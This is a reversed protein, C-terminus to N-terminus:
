FFNFWRSVGIYFSSTIEPPTGSISFGQGLRSYGSTFNLKRVQYQILANYQDNENSSSVANTNTNSTSKAYSATFVLNKVPNSSLAFSYGDGGYLSVQSSPLVPSPVPVPTLGAGTALAQGNAKTYTGTATIWAGYGMGANYSQSSSSTGAQQTLATRSGGAGANINFKGWSRRASGSFNIFSNMYTVLLTQANQSYGFSGNVHWRRIESSYNESTSFSLSDEGNKDSMNGAMNVTANFNGNLLKHAYGGSGGYSTVGYNEGQFLQARREVYVSTQANPSPNYSADAMLDLSNSSQNSNLGSVAGGAAAISEILQGNLNDSYNLSTSLYLKSTPHASALVNTLDITGNTSTGLYNTDWGSRNFSASFSGQWPLSHSVNFGYNDSDSQTETDAEGSLVEPILSHSDGSSYYAGMNFGELRYGSHLNFSHFANQGEDNTGYVSYESNGMQFGASLSPMNPLAENWSIGFVDNNGHTVYNPLGPVAYSGESNYAKSYSVAGPFHSGGFINASLDVGSANSISQFDSNSRSQNLYLGANYTLFNPNYYFGSLNVDGGVTWGHDSGIMNGYDATYGTSVTGSLQTSLQGIREQAAVPWALLLLGARVFWAARVSVAAKHWRKLM